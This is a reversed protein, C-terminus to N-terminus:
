GKRLSRGERRGFHWYHYQGSPITGAAVAEAVDPNAELYDDENISSLKELHATYALYQKYPPRIAVWPRRYGTYLAVDAVFYGAQACLEAVRGRYEFPVYHDLVMDTKGALRIFLEILEPLLGSQCIRMTIKPPIMHVTDGEVQICQKLAESAQVTGEHIDHYVMEGAIRALDPRLIADAVSSKGSYHKDLFLVAIPKKHQIHYVCRPTPDGRQMVSYGMFKHSYKSLMSKMKARTPFLRVDSVSRTLNRRVPIFADEDGPAIGLELVLLGNPNLRTMFQNILAQQDDAYHIASLCLILDFTEHGLSSWDQCAFSCQPFWLRAQQISPAHRDIGKVREAGQFSAWGCFYGDNCGADLVSKGKLAPLSLSVLKEFSRSGGRQWPFDQYGM